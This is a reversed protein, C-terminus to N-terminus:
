FARRWSEPTGKKQLKVLDPHTVTHSQIEIGCKEMERAAPVLSATM